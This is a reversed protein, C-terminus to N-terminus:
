FFDSETFLLIPMQTSATNLLLSPMQFKPFKIHKRAQKKIEEFDIEYKFFETKVKLYVYVYICQTLYALLVSFIIGMYGIKLFGFLIIGIIHVISYIIRNISIQKYYGNKNLWINLISNNSAFFTFLSILIIDLITYNRLFNCKVLVIGGIIVLLCVITTLIMGLYYTAKREKDNDKSDMIALDYKGNAIIAIILVM